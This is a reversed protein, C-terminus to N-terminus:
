CFATDKSLYLHFSQGLLSVLLQNEQKKKQGDICLPHLGVSAMRM